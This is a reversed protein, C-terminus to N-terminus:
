QGGRCDYVAFGVEEVRMRCDSAFGQPRWRDFTVLLGDLYTGPGVNDVGAFMTGNHFFCQDWRDCRIPKNVRGVMLGKAYYHLMGVHYAPHVFIPRGHRTTEWEDLGAIFSPAHDRESRNEAYYGHVAPIDSGFWWVLAFGLGIRIPVSRFLLPTAALMPVACAVVMVVTPERVVQFQGALTVAIAVGVTALASGRQGWSLRRWLVLNLLLVLAVTGLMLPPGVDPHLGNRGAWNAITPVIAGPADLGMGLIKPLTKSLPEDNAVRRGTEGFIYPLLPAMCLAAPVYVGLIAARGRARALGLGLVALLPVSLYHLWPLLIACALALWPWPGSWKPDDLWRSMAYLHVLLTVSWWSYIRFIASMEVTTPHIAVFLAGLTGAVLGGVAGAKSGAARSAFFAAAIALWGMVLSFRRGWYPAEVDSFPANFLIRWLPPNTGTEPDEFIERVGDVRMLTGIEDSTYGHELLPLRLWGGLLLLLTLVVLTALQIRLEPKM